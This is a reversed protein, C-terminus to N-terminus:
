KALSSLSRNFLLNLLDRALAFQLVSEMPKMFDYRFNISLKNVVISLWLNQPM